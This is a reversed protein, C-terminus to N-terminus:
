SPWSAWCATVRAHGHEDNVRKFHDLDLVLVGLSANRRAATAALQVAVEDFYRRNPLNTLSDIYAATRLQKMRSQQESIDTLSFLLMGGESGDGGPMSRCQVRTDIQGEVSQMSVPEVVPHSRVTAWMGSDSLLQPFYQGESARPGFLGELAANGRLISGTKADVVAVPMPMNALIQSVLRTWAQSQKQFRQERRLLWVGAGVFAMMSVIGLLNLYLNRRWANRYSDVPFGVDLDLHQMGANFFVRRPAVLRQAGDFPSADYFTGAVPGERKDPTSPVVFGAQTELQPPFAAVLQDGKRLLATTSATAVNIGAFLSQVLPKVLVITADHKGHPDVHAKAFYLTGSGRGPM